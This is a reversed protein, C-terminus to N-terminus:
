RQGNKKDNNEKNEKNLIRPKKNKMFDGLKLALKQKFNQLDSKKNSVKEHNLM